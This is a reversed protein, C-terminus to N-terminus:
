SYVLKYKIPMIFGEAVGLEGCLGAKSDDAKIRSSGGSM